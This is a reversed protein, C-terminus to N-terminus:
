LKRLPVSPQAPRQRARNRGYTDTMEALRRVIHPTLQGPLFRWSWNGSERAPTNMRAETGLGLLDQLPIIAMDAVSALALRILDWSIEHGDTGLYRRLFTKEDAEGAEGAEDAPDYNGVRGAEGDARGGAFPEIQHDGARFWGVTTDNDHTGTYVVSNPNFRYPKLHDAAPDPSFAFQLVNMGPLDFRDRLQRVEDTIFGLDEAIIPLAGLEREIALFLDAGPGIQWEGNRATPEGAPVAWYKEFGRFHDLRVIDVMSLAARIRAVWWRYGDEAMLSWRYLPNGWLQGDASFYDPPVGAVATPLGADDLLFYRRDAWVDSSDHAVFIPIDGIILVGHQNAYRALSLWQRFFLFQQFRHYDIRAENEDRFSHLATRDRDRLPARWRTWEQGAHADKIARFLAYDDLWWSTRECFDRYAGILSDGAAQRSLARFNDHARELLRSKYNIVLGYDVREAPFPPSDDLDEAALVGERVLMEPSILLPNGAFASFCQYPSDGYGTPGLPLVQWVGQGMSELLDIFRYASPGLDGIGFDGPLSTPHLLIGSSRQFRM